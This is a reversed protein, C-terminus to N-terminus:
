RTNDKIILFYEIRIHPTYYIQLRYNLESQTKGKEGQGQLVRFYWLGVLMVNIM